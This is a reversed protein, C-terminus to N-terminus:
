FEDQWTLAVKTDAKQPANPIKTTSTGLVSNKIGLM